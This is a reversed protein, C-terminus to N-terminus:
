IFYLDNGRMRLFRNVSIYACFVTASIGFLIIGAGLVALRMPPFLAVLGPEKECLLYLAGVLLADAMIGSALGIWMNRVLFPRRIFGWTAGVLKMTHLLFRKSYISLRVMNSVLSWSVMMLLAFFVLLGAGIRHINSNVTDIIEKPYVIEEVGKYSKLEKEIKAIRTNDAFEPNMSLEISARYPNYGLFEVTEKADIGLKRAEKELTENSSVYVVKKCYEKAALRKQLAVADADSTSTALVVSVTLEKRVYASLSEAVVLLLGMTGLLVLVLTTSIYVSVTQIKFRKRSM